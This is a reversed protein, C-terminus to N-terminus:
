WRLDTVNIEVRRNPALCAILAANNTQHCNTVVPNRAGLGRATINDPKLRNKLLQNRVAQARRESLTQNARADGIRDSHGIIEIRTEGRARISDAYQNIKSAGAPTLEASGFGFAVDSDLIIPKEMTACGALVMVALVGVLRAVSKKNKKIM